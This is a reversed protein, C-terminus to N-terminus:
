VATYTLYNDPATGSNFPVFRKGYHEFYLCVNAPFTPVTSGTSYLLTSYLCPYVLPSDSRVNKIGFQVTGGKDAYLYTCTNIYNSITPVGFYYCGDWMICENGGVFMTQAQDSIVVFMRYTKEGVIQYDCVGGAALINTGRPVLFFRWDGSVGIENWTPSLVGLAYPQTYEAVSSPQVFLDLNQPFNFFVSASVTSEDIAIVVMDAWFAPQDQFFWGEQFCRFQLLDLGSVKPINEVASFTLSLDGFKGRQYFDEARYPQELFEAVRQTDFSYLNANSNINM